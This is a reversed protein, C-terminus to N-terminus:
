NNTVALAAVEARRIAEIVLSRYGAYGRIGGRLYATFREHWGRAAASAKLSEAIWDLNAKCWDVGRADLEAAREICQACTAVGIERAIAILHSGVGPQIAISARRAPSADDRFLDDPCTGRRANERITDGNRRCIGSACQACKVCHAFNSLLGIM